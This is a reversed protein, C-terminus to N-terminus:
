PLEEIVMPVTVPPMKPPPPLAPAKVAAGGRHDATAVILGAGTADETGGQPSCALLLLTLMLITRPNMALSRPNLNLYM